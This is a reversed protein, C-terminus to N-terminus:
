LGETLSKSFTYYEQNDLYVKVEVRGKDPVPITLIIPFDTKNVTDNRITETKGTQQDTVDVRMQITDGFDDPKDMTVEEQVNTSGPAPPEETPDPTPTPEPTPASVELTINVGSEQQVTTGSLPDQSIIRDVLNNSDEPLVKNLKLGWKDLEKVAENRTMGILSPVKVDKLEPGRSVYVTVTSGVPVQEGAGPDTKIVYNPTIENYSEQIDVKLQLNNELDAKVARYERDKYTPLTVMQAGKSYKIIISGGKKLTKGADVSQSVVKGSAMNADFVPEAQFSIDGDSLEKKVEEFDRGVYHGVTFSGGSNNGLTPLVVKTILIGFLLVILFASVGAVWYTIKDKKKQERKKASMPTEEKTKRGPSDVIPVRRTPSDDMNEEAVFDGNPNRLAEYLDNLMDSATQYRKNQEKRTAKMIMDNVARPITKNLQVPETPQDQIHKLAIAVPSEGDFPVKGTVMEYLAIGLSYLDSKEDTYGGRAQEPSFYHVSGITSGVVTITSSTVARAIGFDTVKAIGDTTLIINHPKIDRHVIHNRHAHELASCIQIAINVADKWKLAGNKTILEKLTVGDIYEMVIYHIDEEQGVDYISVINPHSLSAASQAEIRFRKVFEEDSTFEPRLVKIAVFRNLLMCKAKYVLAMGGGGIKELLQYRNGLIKNLM